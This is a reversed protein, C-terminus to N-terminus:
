GRDMEIMFDLPKERAGAQGQGTWIRGNKPDIGCAHASV